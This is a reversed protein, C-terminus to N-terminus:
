NYPNEKLDNVNIALGKEILGELDFKNAYLWKLLIIQRTCVLVEKTHHDKFVFDKDWSYFSGQSSVCYGDKIIWEHFPDFLKALEVIPIVEKGDVQIPKTLDMPRLYPKFYIIEYNGFEKNKPESYFLYEKGNDEKTAGSINVIYPNEASMKLAKLWYPLYPSIHELTLTEM